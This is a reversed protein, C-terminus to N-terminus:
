CIKQAEMSVLRTVIIHSSLDPIAFGHNKLYFVESTPRVVIM